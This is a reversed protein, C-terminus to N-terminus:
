ANKKVKTIASVIAFTAYHDSLDCTLVGSVVRRKRNNTYIHNLLTKSTLSIRTPLDTLSLCTCSLLMNAYRRISDNTSIQMLNINFDGFCYYQKKSNNLSTLIENLCDKFNDVASATAIPYRYVVGVVIPGTKAHIDIWLHESNPLLYNSYQNLKFKITNKIYM